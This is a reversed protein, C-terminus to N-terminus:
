RPPPKEHLFAGFDEFNEVIHRTINAAADRRPLQPVEPSGARLTQTHECDLVYHLLVEPTDTGCLACERSRGEVIEWSCPYGLRLRSVTTALWRPTDRTVPSPRLLTALQFWKTSPSGEALQRQHQQQGQALEYQHVLSSIATKQLPIRLTILPSLTASHALNDARVNGPIHAHGPVWTM